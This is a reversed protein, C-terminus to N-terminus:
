ENINNNEIRYHKIIYNLAKIYNKNNNYILNSSMTFDELEEYIIEPHIINIETNNIVIPMIKLDKKLSINLRTFWKQDNTETNVLYHATKTLLGYNLNYNGYNKNNNLFVTTDTYHSPIVLISCVDINKFKYLCHPAYIYTLLIIACEDTIMYKIENNQIKLTNILNMIKLFFLDWWLPFKIKDYILQYQKIYKTKTKKNGKNKKNNKNKFLFSFCNM